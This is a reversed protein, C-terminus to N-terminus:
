SLFFLFFFWVFLLSLSPFLLGHEASPSVRGAICRCLTIAAVLTRSKVGVWGERRSPCPAVPEEAAPFFFTMFCMSIGNKPHKTQNPKPKKGGAKANLCFYFLIAGNRGASSSRPVRWPPLSPPFFLRPVMRMGTVRGRSAGFADSVHRADAAFAVAPVAAAGAGGFVGSYDGNEMGAGFICWPQRHRSGFSRPAFGPARWIYPIVVIVISSYLPSISAGRLELYKLAVSTDILM